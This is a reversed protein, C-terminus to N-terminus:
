WEKNSKMDDKIGDIRSDIETALQELFELAEALSMKGPEYAHDILQLIRTLDTAMSM